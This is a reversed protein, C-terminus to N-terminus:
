ADREIISMSFQYEWVKGDPVTGAAIEEGDPNIEIKLTKGTLVEGNAKISHRLTYGSMESARGNALDIAM